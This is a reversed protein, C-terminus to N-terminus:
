EYLVVLAGHGGYSCSVYAPSYSDSVYYNHSNSFCDQCIIQAYAGADGNIYAAIGVFPIMEGPDLSRVSYLNTKNGVMGSGTEPVTVHLHTYCNPIVGSYPIYQHFAGFGAAGYGAIRMGDSTEVGTISLTREVAFIVTQLSQWLCVTIRSPTGSFFCPQATPSYSGYAAIQSRTSVQGTLNGSGDTGTGLTFWLAPAYSGLYNSGNGYEIKLYLKPLEDGTEWIEYGGSENRATPVLVTTWDIQDDDTTQNWGIVSMADSIPKGWARFSVDSSNDPVTNMPVTTM